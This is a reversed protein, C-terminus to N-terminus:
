PGEQGRRRNSFHVHNGPQLHLVLLGAKEGGHHDVWPGLSSGHRGLRGQNGIEPSARGTNARAM